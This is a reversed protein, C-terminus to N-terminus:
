LTVVGTSGSLTGVQSNTYDRLVAVVTNSAASQSGSPLCTPIAVAVSSTSSSSIFVHFSFFTFTIIEPTLNVHKNQLSIFYLIGTSINASPNFTAKSATKESPLRTPTIRLTPPVSAASLVALSSPIILVPICQCCWDQAHLSVSVKVDWGQMRQITAASLLAVPATLSTSSVALAALVMWFFQALALVLILM